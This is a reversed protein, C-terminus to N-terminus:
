KKAGGIDDEEEEEWAGTSAGARKEPMQSTKLWCNPLVMFKEAKSTYARKRFNDYNNEEIQIFIMFYGVFDTFTQFM